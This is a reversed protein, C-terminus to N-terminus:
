YEGSLMLVNNTCFLILEKKADTYEYEQKYFVKDNGDTIIMTGKGDNLKLKISLFEKDKLKTKIVAICDTVFWSYGNKMIYEIGETANVVLVNIYKTTGSYQGLEKLELDDKM